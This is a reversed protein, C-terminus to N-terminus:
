GPPRLGRESGGSAQRPIQRREDLSALSALYADVDEREHRRERLAAIAGAANARATEQDALRWLVRDIRTM